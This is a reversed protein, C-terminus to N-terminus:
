LVVRWGFHGELVDDGAGDLVVEVLAGAVAVVLAVALAAVLEVEVARGRVGRGVGGFVAGEERLGELEHLLAVGAAVVVHVLLM